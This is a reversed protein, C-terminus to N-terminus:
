EEKAYDSHGSLSTSSSIYSVAGLLCFGDHQFRSGKFTCAPCVCLFGGEEFRSCLFFIFVNFDRYLYFPPIKKKKKPIGSNLSATMKLEPLVM